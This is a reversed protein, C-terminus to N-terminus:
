IRECNERMASFATIEQIVCSLGRRPVVGDVGGAPDAAVPGLLLVLGEVGDQLHLGEGVVAQRHIHQVDDVAGFEGDTLDVGLVDHGGFAADEGDAELYPGDRIQFGDAGLDQGDGVDDADVPSLILQNSIATIAANVAAGTM